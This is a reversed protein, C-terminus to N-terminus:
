RLGRGNPLPPQGPLKINKLSNTIEPNFNLFNKDIKEIFKSIHKEIYKNCVNYENDLLLFGKIPTTFHCEDEKNCHQCIVVNIIGKIYQIYKKIFYEKNQQTDIHIKLIAPKKNIKKDPTISVDITNIKKINNLRNIFDNKNIKIFDHLKNLYDVINDFNLKKFSYLIFDDYFFFPNISQNLSFSIYSQLFPYFPYLSMSNKKLWLDFFWTLYEKNKTSIIIPMKISNYSLFLNHADEYKKPTYELICRNGYIKKINSIYQMVEISAINDCQIIFYKKENDINTFM